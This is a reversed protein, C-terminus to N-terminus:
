ERPKHGFIVYKTVYKGPFFERASFSRENWTRGFPESVM